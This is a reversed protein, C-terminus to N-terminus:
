EGVTGEFTDCITRRVKEMLEDKTKRTYDSSDIPALLQMRVGRSKIMLRGKPMISRTGFIVVPVIPVGADVALVFGGKKFSRIKGDESRTGEPFILVSVGERIKRAAEKLSAFARKRNSRDISIYGCGRMGRGFIPIKFLEQKALWRFQVPLRGLLVPIDFNSQHNPMIICSRGQPIHELGEIEVQVRSVLLISRAWLRAVQHAVNGGKSFMAIVIVTLGLCITSLIVWAFIFLTHIASKVM